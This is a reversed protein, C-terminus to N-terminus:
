DAGHLVLLWATRCGSLLLMIPASVLLSGAASLDAAQAPAGGFAPVLVLLGAGLLFANGVISLGFRRALVGRGAGAAGARRVVFLSRVARAIGVAGVVGLVLGLNSAPLGPILMALSLVLVLLFDSLTQQALTRLAPDGRLGLARINFTLAVFMLGVLGGSVQAVAGFYNELSAALEATANM